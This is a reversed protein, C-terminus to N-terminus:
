EPNGFSENNGGSLVGRIKEVARLHNEDTERRSIKGHTMSEIGRRWYYLIEPIHHFNVGNLALRMWWETDEATGFSVDFPLSESARVSKVHGVYNERLAGEFSFDPKRKVKFLEGEDVDLGVNPGICAHDSYVFGVSSDEYALVCKSVCDRHLVDDGDLLVFFDGRAIEMATNRTAAAGKNGDHSFTRIPLEPHNKMYQGVVQFTKDTSGDDVVVVELDKLLVNRQIRVSELAVGVYKEVNYAPMIISTLPNM